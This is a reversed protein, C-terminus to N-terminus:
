GRLMNTFVIRETSDTLVEKLVYAARSTYDELAESDIELWSRMATNKEWVSKMLLAYRVNQDDPVRIFGHWHPHTGGRGNELVFVGQIRYSEHKSAWRRGLSRHAVCADFHKLRTLMSQDSIPCEPYTNLTIAINPQIAQIMQVYADRLDSPLTM